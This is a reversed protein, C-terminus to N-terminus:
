EVVFFGIVFAALICTVGIWVPLGHRVHYNSEKHGITGMTM